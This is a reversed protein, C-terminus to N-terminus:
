RRHRGRRAGLEIGDGRMSSLDLMSAYHLM